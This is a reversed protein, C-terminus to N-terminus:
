RRKALWVEKARQADEPTMPRGCSPCRKFVVNGQGGCAPCEYFKPKCKDCTPLCTWCSMLM